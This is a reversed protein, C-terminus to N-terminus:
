RELTDRLNMLTQSISPAAPRFTCCSLITPFSIAPDAGRKQGAGGQEPGWTSVRTSWLGLKVQGRSRTPNKALPLHQHGLGRGGGDWGTDIFIIKNQLLM